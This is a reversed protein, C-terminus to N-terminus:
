TRAEVLSMVKEVVEDLSLGDTNIVVADAAARLPSVARTSDIADRRELDALVSELSPAARKAALQRQRRRAREERSADLYVKLDADPLVATGIDRGAMVIAGKQALLRQLRVMERRVGAVRSVLSVNAEVEPTRLHPTANEGGVCVHCREIDQSGGSGPPPSTVEIVTNAALRAMSAEDEPDLGLKLAMWTLARYMAGTDLFQYGLNRAV